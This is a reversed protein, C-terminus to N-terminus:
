HCARQKFPCVAFKVINNNRGLSCLEIKSLIFLVQQNYHVSVDLGKNFAGIKKRHRFHRDNYIVVSFRNVINVIRDYKEM